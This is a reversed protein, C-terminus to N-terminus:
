SILFVIGTLSRLRSCENVMSPTSTAIRRERVKKGPRPYGLNIGVIAPAAPDNSCEVIWAEERGTMPDVPVHKLYGSLVLDDLSRPRMHKDLTHNIVARM